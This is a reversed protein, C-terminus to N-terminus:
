SFDGVMKVETELKVGVKQFVTQQIVVILDQVDRCTASGTNIIFGSHKESVQAGGVSKGKLGCQEILAAAYYGEPRKFISGASPYELPQKSKRREMLELMRAHIEERNGKQLEVTIGTIIFGNDTYASRRYRLRLADGSLSGSTGSPTLHTVSKLVDKMEGGYAGANMYAAGGASGPIGFAFELGTLSHELAFRCLRTLSVGAGCTITVGDEALQLSSFGRDLHFVVGRMGKDSILLNSGKGLIFFPIGKHRCLVLLEALAEPSSPSVLLDANGGIQFSTYRALPENQKPFCGLEEALRYIDKM